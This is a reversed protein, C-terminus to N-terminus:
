QFHAVPIQVDAPSLGYIRLDKIRGMINTVVSPTLGYKQEFRHQFVEDATSVMSNVAAPDPTPISQRPAPGYMEQIDTNNAAYRICDMLLDSETDIVVGNEVLAAKIAKINEKEEPVESIGQYHDTLTDPYRVAWSDLRERVGSTDPSAKAFADIIAAKSLVLDRNTKTVMVYDSIFFFAQFGKLQSRSPYDNEPVSDYIHGIFAAMEYAGALPGNTANVKGSPLQAKEAAARTPEPVNTKVERVPAQVAETKPKLAPWLLLFAIAGTLLALAILYRTKM